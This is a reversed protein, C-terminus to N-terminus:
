LKTVGPTTPDVWPTTTPRSADRVRDIASQQAQDRPATPPPEPTLWEDPILFMIANALRLAQDKSLLRESDANSELEEAITGLALALTHALQYGGITILEWAMRKDNIDFSVGTDPTTLDPLDAPPLPQTMTPRPRPGTDVDLLRKANTPDINPVKGQSLAAQLVMANPNALWVGPQRRALGLLDEQRLDMSDVMVGTLSGWAFDMRGVLSNRLVDDANHDPKILYEIVRLIRQMQPQGAAVVRNGGQAKAEGAAAKARQVLDQAAAQALEVSPAPPKGARSKTPDGSGCHVCGKEIRGDNQVGCAPCKWPGAPGLGDGAARGFRSASVIGEGDPAPKGIPSM